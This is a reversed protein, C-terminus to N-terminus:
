EKVIDVVYTSRNTNFVDMDRITSLAIPDTLTDFVRLWVLVRDIFLTNDQIAKGPGVREFAENGGLIRGFLTETKFTTFSKDRTHLSQYTDSFCLRSLVIHSSKENVVVNTNTSYRYISRETSRPTSDMTM